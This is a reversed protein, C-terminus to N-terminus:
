KPCDGLPLPQPLQPTHLKCGAVQGCYGKAHQIWYDIRFRESAFTKHVWWFTVPGILHTGFYKWAWGFSNRHGHVTGAGVSARATVQGFSRWVVVVQDPPWCNDYRGQALAGNNRNYTDSHAAQSANPALLSLVLAACLAAALRNM